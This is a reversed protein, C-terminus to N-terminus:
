SRWATRVLGPVAARCSSHVGVDSEQDIGDRVMEFLVRHEILTSSPAFRRFQEVAPNIQSGPKLISTHFHVGRVTIKSALNARRSINKHGESLRSTAPFHTVTRFEDGASKKCHLRWDDLRRLIVCLKM